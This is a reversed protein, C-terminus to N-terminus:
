FRYLLVRLPAHARFWFFRTKDSDSRRVSEDAVMANSAALVEYFIYFYFGKVNDDIKNDLVDVHIKQAFLNYMKTGFNVVCSDAPVQRPWTSM